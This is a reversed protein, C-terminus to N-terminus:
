RLPLALLAARLWTKPVKYAVLVASPEISMGWSNTGAVGGKGLRLTGFAIRKGSEQVRLANLKLVTSLRIDEFL